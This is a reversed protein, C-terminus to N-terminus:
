ITKGRLEDLAPWKMEETYGPPTTRWACTRSVRRRLAQLVDEVELFMRRLSDKTLLAKRFYELRVRKSKPKSHAVENRNRRIEEMVETQDETIQRRKHLWECKTKFSVYGQQINKLFKTNKASPNKRVYYQILQDAEYELINQFSLLIERIDVEEPETPLL